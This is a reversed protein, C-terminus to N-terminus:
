RPVEPPSGAPQALGTVMLEVLESDDPFRMLAGSLLTVAEERRRSELLLTAAGRYAHLRAADEPSLNESGPAPGRLAPVGQYDFSMAEPGLVELYLSLAQEPDGRGLLEDALGVRSRLALARTRESGCGDAEGRLALDLAAGALHEALRREATGLLATCYEWFAEPGADRIGSVGIEDFVLLAASFEGGALRTRALGLRARQSSAQADLAAEFYRQADDLQGRALALEGAAIEASVDVEPSPPDQCALLACCLALLLHRPLARL